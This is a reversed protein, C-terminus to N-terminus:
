RRKPVGDAPCGSPRLRYQHVAGSASRLPVPAFDVENGATTRVYGISDDTAWREPEQWDVSRALATGISAETLRTFFLQDWDAKIYSFALPFVLLDAARSRYGSADSLGSVCGDRVPRGVSQSGKM